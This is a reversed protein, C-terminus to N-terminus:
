SECQDDAFLVDLTDTGELVETVADVEGPASSGFVYTDDGTGGIHADSGLTGNLVDRGGLGSLVNGAANGVLTM